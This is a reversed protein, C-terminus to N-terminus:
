QHVVNGASRLAVARRYADAYREALRDMSWNAAHSAARASARPDPDSSLAEDLAKALAGADGPPVLTAHGGAAERYGPIDSAVVRCGAAMGELLVAGFSEGGLAPACLVRAGRMRDAAEDDSVAGLWHVRDSEPHRARLGGTEPGAGAVWLVAPAHVAEFADLLVALGKRQEHRGIFLVAPVDSPTARAAAFRGLDVGNFLVEYDGPAGGCLAAATDRAVESVACCVDIRRRAWRALPAAVRYASGIGGRHFTAVSPWRRTVLFGYGLVPALPEHLHVVDPRWLRAAETARIAAYPSLAVPAVSGNARVGASRGALYLPGPSWGPVKDGPAVVLVEHGLTRLAKALGVVQGQVGGHRSLDYPCVVAVRLTAAPERPV